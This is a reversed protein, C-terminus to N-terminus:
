DPALVLGHETLKIKIDQLSVKGFNRVHMLENESKSLLDGLTEIGLNRMCTLSRKTFDLSSIPQNLMEEPLGEIGKPQPPAEDDVSDMESDLSLSQSNKEKPKRRGEGLSLKYQGLIEKIERLSNEGFNKYSLLEEKTKHILDGITRINMKNLCNRARVSLEFDSIPIRLIQKKKDTRRKNDEDYYMGMASNCDDLYLWAMEHTPYVKLVEQFCEIANEYDERDEYLLGLNIWAHAYLPSAQKCFEYHELANEEDGRLSEHFALRFHAELYDPNKELIAEYGEAAEDYEGEMEKLYSELFLVDGHNKDTKGLKQIIKQAEKEERRRLYLEALIVQLEWSNPYVGLGKKLFDLGQATKEQAFCIRALLYYAVEHKNKELVEVAQAWRDLLWHILGIKTKALDGKGKKDLDELLDELKEQEEKQNALQFYEQQIQKVDQIELKNKELIHLFDVGSQPM